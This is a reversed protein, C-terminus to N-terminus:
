FDSNRCDWEGCPGLGSQCNIKGQPSVKFSVYGHFDTRLIESKMNRWRRLVEKRPHGYRNEAGVSVISWLPRTKKVFPLHSSTKSGHHAVKVVHYPRVIKKLLLAESEKEIDGAFLFRCGYVELHGVLGLNNSNPKTIPLMPQLDFSYDSTKLNWIEKLDHIPIKRSKAEAIVQTLLGPVPYLIELNKSFYLQRVSVKRLLSFLGLVHDSDPHSLIFGDLSLIAKRSLEQFLVEGIRQGEYGGGADLLYNKGFPLRILASDGQGVDWFIVEAEASFYREYARFLVLGSLILTM